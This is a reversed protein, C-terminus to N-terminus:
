YINYILLGRLKPPVGTQGTALEYLVCLLGFVDCHVTQEECDECRWASLGWEETRAVKEEQQVMWDLMGLKAVGQSVMMVAHSSIGTHLFNLSHLFILAECVEFM